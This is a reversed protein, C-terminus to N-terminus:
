LSDFLLRSSLLDSFRISTVQSSGSSIRILPLLCIPDAVSLLVSSRAVFQILSWSSLLDSFRISTVQSSRSSIRILPLLCIPDTISLLVFRM